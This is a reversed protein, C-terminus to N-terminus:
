LSFCIAELGQILMGHFGGIEVPCHSLQCAKHRRINGPDNRL